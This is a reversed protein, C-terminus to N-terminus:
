IIMSVKLIINNMGKNNHDRHVSVNPSIKQLKKVSFLICNQKEQFHTFGYM